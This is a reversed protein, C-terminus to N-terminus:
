TDVRKPVHFGDAILIDSLEKVPESWTAPNGGMLSAISEAWLEQERYYQKGTVHSKTGFYDAYDSLPKLDIGEKSWKDQWAKYTFTNDLERLVHGVHHGMEHIMINQAQLKQDVKPHWNIEESRKQSKVLSDVEMPRIKWERKNAYASWLAFGEWTPYKDMDNNTMISFVISLEEGDAGQRTEALFPFVRVMIQQSKVVEHLTDNTLQSNTGYKWEFGTLKSIDEDSASNFYRESYQSKGIEYSKWKDIAEINETYTGKTRSINHTLLEKPIEKEPKVPKEVKDKSKRGIKTSRKIEVGPFLESIVRERSASWFSPIKITSYTWNQANNVAYFEDSMLDLKKDPVSGRLIERLEDRTHIGWKHSKGVKMKIASGVSESGPKDTFRGIGDRPHESEDFALALGFSDWANDLAENEDDTLIDPQEIQKM